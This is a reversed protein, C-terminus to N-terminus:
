SESLEALQDILMDAGREEVPWGHRAIWREMLERGHGGEGSFDTCGGAYYVRAPEGDRRTLEVMYYVMHGDAQPVQSVIRYVPLSLAYGSRMFTSVHRIFQGVSATVGPNGIWAHQKDWPDCGLGHVAIPWSGYHGKGALISDIESDLAEADRHLPRTVSGPMSERMRLEPCPDLEDLADMTENFIGALNDAHKQRMQDRDGSLSGPAPVYLHRGIAEAFRIVEENWRTRLTHQVKRLEDQNM